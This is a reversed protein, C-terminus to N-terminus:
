ISSGEAKTNGCYSKWQTGYHILLHYIKREDEFNLFLGSRPVLGSKQISINGMQRMGLDFPLTYVRNRLTLQRVQRVVGDVDMQYFYTGSPLNSAQFTVAHVGAKQRGDVKRASIAPV